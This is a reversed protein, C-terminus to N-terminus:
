LQSRPDDTDFLDVRRPARQESPPAGPTANFASTTIEFTNQSHAEAYIELTDPGYPRFGGHYVFPDLNFSM